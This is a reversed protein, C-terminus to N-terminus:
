SGSAPGGCSTSVNASAQVSVNLSAAAGTDAKVAKGACALAKGSLSTLENGVVNATTVVQNAADLVLKGQTQVLLVINPLNKKL